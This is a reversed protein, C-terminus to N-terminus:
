RKSQGPALDTADWDAAIIVLDEATREGLLEALVVRQRRAIEAYEGVPEAYRKSGPLTHFRIWRDPYAARVQHGIPDADPWSRAWAATLARSRDSDEPEDFEGTLGRLRRWRRRVADQPGWLVSALSAPIM